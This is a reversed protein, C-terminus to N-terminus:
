SLEAFANLSWDLVDKYTGDKISNKLANRVVNQFEIYEEYEWKEYPQTDGNNHFWDMEYTGSDEHKLPACKLGLGCHYMEKRKATAARLVKQEVPVHFYKRARTIPLISIPLSSDIVVLNVLTDNLWRQAVGYSQECSQRYIHIIEECIKRHKEDFIEQGTSELLVPIKDALLGEVEHNLKNSEELSVTKGQFIRRCFSQYSQNAAKCIMESVSDSVRIKYRSELVYKNKMQNVVDGMHKRCQRKAVCVDCKPNSSTCIEGFGDSCYSWLIYDTEAVSKQAAKAIGFMIEISRYESVDRSTSFGLCESGLIRRIHTDPKPLNYGVNRLYECVLPVGMQQLKNDSETDSLTEILLRESVLLQKEIGKQIYKQYYNDVAGYEKEWKLLKPINVHILANMYDSGFRPALHLKQLEQLLQEPSCALLETPHYQHFVTDVCSIAGTRSDAEKAYKDWSQGGSLMAYVMARIHDNVSFSAGNEREDIQRKIYTNEWLKEVFVEGDKKLLETRLHRDMQDIMDHINETTHWM